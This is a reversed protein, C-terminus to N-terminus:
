QSWMGHYWNSLEYSAEYEDKNFSIADMVHSLLHPNIYGHQEYPMRAYEELLAVLDDQLNRTQM